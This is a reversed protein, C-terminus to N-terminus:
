RGRRAMIYMSEPLIKKSSYKPKLLFYLIKELERLNMGRNTCYYISKVEDKFRYMHQSLRTRLKATYGVYLVTENDGYLIYVAELDDSLEEYRMYCHWDTTNILDPESFEAGGLKVSRMVGM